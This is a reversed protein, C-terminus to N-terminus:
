AGAGVIGNIEDSVDAAMRASSEAMSAVMRLKSFYEHALAEGLDGKNIAALAMAKNLARPQGYVSTYAVRRALHERCLEFAERALITARRDIAKMIDDPFATIPDSQGTLLLERVNISKANTSTTFQVVNSSDM